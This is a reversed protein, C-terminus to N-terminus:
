DSMTSWGQKTLEIALPMMDVSGQPESGVLTSFSFM